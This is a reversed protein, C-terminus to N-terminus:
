SPRERAPHDFVDAITAPPPPLPGAPQYPQPWSSAAAQLLWAAMHDERHAREAAEAARALLEDREAEAAARREAIEELWEGHEEVLRLADYVANRAALSAAQLRVGIAHVERRRRDESQVPDVADEADLVRGAAAEVEQRVETRHRDKTLSEERRAERLETLAREHRTRAQELAPWGTPPVFETNVVIAAAHLERPPETVTTM